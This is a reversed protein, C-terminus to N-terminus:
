VISLAAFVQANLVFSSPCTSNILRAKIKSCSRNFPPFLWSQDPIKPCKPELLTARQIKVWGRRSIKLSIKSSRMKHSLFAQSAHVWKIRTLSFDIWHCSKPGNVKSGIYSPLGYPVSHKTKFGSIWPSDMIRSFRASVKWNSGAGGEKKKTEQWSGRM